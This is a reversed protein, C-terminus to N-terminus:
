GRRRRELARRGAEMEAQTAKTYQPGDDKSTKKRRRGKGKDDGSNDDGDDGDNSTDDPNDGAVTQVGQPASAGEPQVVNVFGTQQQTSQEAAKADRERKEALLQETTKHTKQTEDTM